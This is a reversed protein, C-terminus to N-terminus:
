DNWRFRWAAIGGAVLATALLVATPTLADVLGLGRWTMADLGDVAWRTPFALSAKQVWAPFFSAPVMGGSLMSVILIVAVSIGRTAQPTKGFTAALLALSAAMIAFSGAVLAFGLVSGRVGVGMTLAGFGYLCLLVALAVLAGSVLRSGILTRRTIPAAQLRRLLGRERENLLGIALDVAGILIFQIGMGALAHAGMDFGVDRGQVSSSEIVFPKEATACRAADAGVEAELSSFVAREIEASAFASELRATPDVRLLLKPRGASALEAVFGSPIVLAVAVKQHQLKDEADAEGMPHVALKPHAALAATLRTSGESHDLDVIATELRRATPQRKGFAFGFLFALLAPLAFSVILARRDRRFLLLDKKVLARFAAASM